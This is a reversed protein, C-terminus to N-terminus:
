LIKRGKFQVEGTDSMTVMGSEFMLEVMESVAEDDTLLAELIDEYKHVFVEDDMGQSSAKLTALAGTRKAVSLLSKLPVHSLVYRNAVSTSIKPLGFM